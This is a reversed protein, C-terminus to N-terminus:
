TTITKLLKKLDNIKHSPFNAIRIHTDKFKGYGAGVIFGAKSLKDLITKTQGKTDVVIITKSYYNPNKIYTTIDCRPPTINLSDYILAPKSFIDPYLDVGGFSSQPRSVASELLSLDRVGHSGGYREIQDFHIALVQAVSLYKM